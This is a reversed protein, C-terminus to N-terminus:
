LNKLQMQARAPDVVGRCGPAARSHPRGQGARGASVCWHLLCQLLSPGKMSAGYYVTLAAYHLAACNSPTGAQQHYGWPNHTDSQGECAPAAAAAPFASSSRQAVSELSSTVAQSSMCEFRYSTCWPWSMSESDPLPPLPRPLPLRRSEAQPMYMTPAQANHHACRCCMAPNHMCTDERGACFICAMCWCVVVAGQM